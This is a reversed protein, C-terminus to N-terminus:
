YTFCKALAENYQNCGSTVSANLCRARPATGSLLSNNYHSEFNRPKVDELYGGDNTTLLLKGGNEHCKFAFAQPNTIGEQSLAQACKSRTCQAGDIRDFREQRSEEATLMPATSPAGGQWLGPTNDWTGNGEPDRISSTRKSVSPHPVQPALCGREQNALLRQQNELIQQLM